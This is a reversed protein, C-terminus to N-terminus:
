RGSKNRADAGLPQRLELAWVEPCQCRSRGGNGFHLIVHQNEIIEDDKEISKSKQRLLLTEAGAKGM